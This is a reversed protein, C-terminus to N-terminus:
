NMSKKSHLNNFLPELYVEIFLRACEHVHVQQGALPEFTEFMFHPLSKKIVIFLVLEGRNNYMPYLGQNIEGPGDDSKIRTFYYNNIQFIAKSIHYHVRM